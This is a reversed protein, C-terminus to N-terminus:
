VRLNIANPYIEFTAPLMGAIEGDTEVAVPRDTDLTPAATLRAARLARVAPNALHTGARLQAFGRLLRRRKMGGMVVLDFLGDQPSAGPAVNLGGGFWAGNAVAVSAIGAIEDYTGAAGSAAHSPAILRVRCEHWAALAALSHLRWAFRGGFLGAIRTRNVARAIRASVGFSAVNLFHRVVPAGDEGLCAVIGVDVKRIRAARLRAVGAEWGAGIGFSRRFDGGTGTTVFSLVADPSVPRGQAFFGNLVENITGDGGVAVIDLHGERLAARALRAAEGPESTEVATLLPFVSELAAGIRPWDRGTRGGGARPNVVAFATM